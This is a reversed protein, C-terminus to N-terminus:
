PVEPEAGLHVVEKLVGLCDEHKAGPPSSFQLLGSISLLRPTWSSHLTMTGLPALVITFTDLCYTVWSLKGLGRLSMKVSMPVMCTPTMPTTGLMISHLSCFISMSTTIDFWPPELSWHLMEESLTSSFNSYESSSILTKNLLKPTVM